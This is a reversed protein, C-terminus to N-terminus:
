PYSRIECKGDKYFFWQGSDNQSLGQAAAPNLSLKIYRYLMICFQTRTIKDKPYFKNDKKDMVIGAQQMTKVTNEFSSDISVEDEFLVAERTVPLVFGAAKAYNSLIVAAEERSVPRDADMHGFENGKLIEQDIAWEMYPNLANGTDEGALSDYKYSSIDVGALRSLAAAISGMSIADDPSFISDSTGTLLGRNLVYDISEKAWHTNVDKFNDSLAQYGIGYVSSLHSTKLIVRRSNQEYVSDAIRIIKKSTDLAAGFFNGGGEKEGPAAKISLLATGTGLSTLNVVKGNKLHSVTVEYAHRLGKVNVERVTFTVNGASIVHIQKLAKTNLEINMPMNSFCLRKVGAKVLKDLASNELVLSYRSAAATKICIDLTIGNEEKGEALAQAQAKKVGSIIEDETVTVAAQKNIVIANLEITSIVPQDIKKDPFVPRTGKSGGSKNIGKISVKIGNVQKYNRGDEPIFSVEYLNFGSVTKVDPDSWEFAGSVNAKGGTLAIDSLLKGVQRSSNVFPKETIISEARRVNIEVTGSAEQYEDEEAKSAKIMATGAGLVTVTNGSVSIVDNGSEVVYTLSGKGSGGAAFIEFPEAGYVLGSPVGTIQLPKQPKKMVVYDNIDASGEMYNSDGSYEATLTFIGNPINNWKFSAAGDEIKSNGLTESANKFTVTGAPVEGSGYPSIIATLIATGNKYVKSTATFHIDPVAKVIEFDFSNKTEKYEGNAAATVTVTYTGVAEPGKPSQTYSTTGRGQYLCSLSGGKETQVAAEYNIGDYIKTENGDAMSLDSYKGAYEGAGSGTITCDNFNTEANTGKATLILTAGESIFLSGGSNIGSSGIDPAYGSGAATVITGTGRITVDAGNGAYSGAAAGAGIGAGGGAGIATVKGGFINVTGGSRYYGGGIGAGCQGGAATIEGSLITVTGNDFGWSGGIGSAFRGGVAELQATDSDGKIVLNGDRRVTIGAFASGSILSNKGSLTLQVAAGTMEFACREESGSVDINLNQITIDVPHEATGLGDKVKIQNSETTGTLIYHYESNTLTIVHNDFSYGDGDEFVSAADITVTLNDVAMRELKVANEVTVTIHPISIGEGTQWGDSIVPSFVYDGAAPEYDPLSTWTVAAPTVTQMGTFMGEDYKEITVEMTKPLNLESQATGASVTQLRVEEPLEEFGVVKYSSQVSDAKTEEEPSVTGNDAGMGPCSEESEIDEGDARVLVKNDQTLLMLGILLFVVLKATSKNIRM